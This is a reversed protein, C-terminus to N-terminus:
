SPPPYGVKKLFDHAYTLADGQDYNLQKLLAGYWYTTGFPPLTQNPAQKLVLKELVSVLDRALPKAKDEDEVYLRLLTDIFSYEHQEATRSKYFGYLKERYRFEEDDSIVFGLDGVGLDTQYWRYYLFDNIASLSTIDAVRTNADIPVDAVAQNRIVDYASELALLLAKKRADMPRYFDESIRWETLGVDRRLSDYVLHAKTIRGDIGEAVARLARTLYAKSKDLNNNPQNRNADAKDPSGLKRYVAGLRYNATVDDPWKHLINIYVKEAQETDAAEGTYQLLYAYEIRCVYELEEQSEGALRKDAELRDNRDAEPKDVFDNLLAEFAKAGDKFLVPNPRESERSEYAQSWIEFAQEVRQLIEKPLKALRALQDSPTNVSRSTRIVPPQPEKSEESQKKILDVYSIMADVMSKLVNLHKNRPIDKKGRRERYDIHHDIEGWADEFASRIQIEVRMERVEYGLATAVTAVFHISSYGSERPNLLSDPKLKSQNCIARVPEVLSLPDMETRSSNIEVTIQRGPLFPSKKEPDEMHALLAGVVYPIEDQYRTVIRFGCIDNMSELTYDTNDSRARARRDYFKEIIREFRKIRSTVAYYHQADIEQQSLYQLVQSQIYRAAVLRSHAEEELKEREAEIDFPTKAVENEGGDAPAVSVPAISPSSPPEGPKKSPAATAVSPLSPPDGPKKSPEPPQPIIEALPNLADPLLGGYFPINAVFPISRSLDLIWNGSSEYKYVHPTIERKAFDLEYFSFEQRWDSNQYAAGASLITLGYGTNDARSGAATEHLHGHVLLHAGRTQALVTEIRRRNWSTLFDLPHHAVVIVLGKDRSLQDLLTNLTKTDVILNKEDHNDCCFMASNLCIVHAPFPHAEKRFYLGFPSNWEGGLPLRERAANYWGFFPGLHDCNVPQLSWDAYVKEDQAIARFLNPLTGKRNVDHNGPVVILESNWEKRVLRRLWEEGAQFEEGRGLNALDGSFICLDPKREHSHVAEILAETIRPQEANIDEVGFHVDSIHLINL